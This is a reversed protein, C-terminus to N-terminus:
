EYARGFLIEMRFLLGALARTLKHFMRTLRAVQSLLDPHEPLFAEIFEHGPHTRMIQRQPQIKPIASSELKPM